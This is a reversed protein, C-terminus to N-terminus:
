SPKADIGRGELYYDKKEPMFIYHVLMFSLLNVKNIYRVILTSLVSIKKKLIKLPIVAAAKM